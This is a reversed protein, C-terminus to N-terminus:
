GHWKPLFYEAIQRFNKASLCSSKQFCRLSASWVDSSSSCEWLIHEISEAELGCIPCSPDTIIKRKALNERTPLLNQCARWMFTKVTNPIQSNWIGKWIKEESRNSCGAQCFAELEKAMHYASGVSFDGKMTGRWIQKDPQNTLSIPISQIAEVEEKSFIERLLSHKWEGASHDILESVLADSDLGKPPSQICYTSPKPLWKDGWIHVKSRNGIRWFLGEQILAKSNHISRWIFSPKNGLKAELISGNPYYKAKMIKATLSDESKWLRWCQKALLAKNFFHLDRFGMGGRSKPLGMRSWSMWPIGNEKRQTGWWFKQMLSNIESCLAKPLLFVSMSYTPIAQIVAKLLV